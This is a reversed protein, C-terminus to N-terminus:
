YLLICDGHGRFSLGKRVCTSFIVVRHNTRWRGGVFLQVLTIISLTFLPVWCSQQVLINLTWHIIFLLWCSSRNRQGRKRWCLYATAVAKNGEHGKLDVQMVGPIRRLVCGLSSSQWIYRTSRLVIYIYRYILHPVYRGSTHLTEVIYTLHFGFVPIGWWKWILVPVFKFSSWVSSRLVDETAM